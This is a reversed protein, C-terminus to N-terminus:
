TDSFCLEQPVLAHALVWGRETRACLASMKLRKAKNKQTQCVRGSYFNVIM